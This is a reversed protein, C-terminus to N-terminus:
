PQRTILSTTWASMTDSAMPCCQWYVAGSRAGRLQEVEAVECAQDFRVDGLTFPVEDITVDLTAGEPPPGRGRTSRSRSM